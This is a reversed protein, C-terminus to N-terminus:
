PELEAFPAAYRVMGRLSAADATLLLAMFEQDVGYENALGVTSATRFGFRSYMSPEGLVVVLPAGIARCTDLGARILRSAIGRRQFAPAVSVPALGLAPPDTARGHIAVPSFLIHGIVAGARTAVLSIAALNCDHLRNVLDSEARRGFAEMHLAHVEDRDRPSETRILAVARSEAHEEAAAADALHRVTLGFVPHLADPAIESLPDLVFLREHMHPHPITLGPADLIAQGYLLLDLDLTRPTWRRGPERERGASREISLLVDLLARAPLSTELTAAANLYSPQPADGPPVLAPTEILPSRAILALGPAASLAAIAREIHAERDGLNSGLSIHAIIAAADSM